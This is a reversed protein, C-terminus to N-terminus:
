QRRIPLKNVKHESLLITSARWHNELKFAWESTEAIFRTNASFIVQITNSICRQYKTAEIM